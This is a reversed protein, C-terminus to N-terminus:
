HVSPAILSAVQNVAMTVMDVYDDHKAGPFTLMENELERIWTTGRPFYVTGAAFRTSAGTARAVKDKDARVGKVPLGSRALQQVLSLQYANSEVYFLRPKYDAHIQKLIRPQDPGELKTHVCHRLILERKKTISWVGACFYDAQESTSVALDCSVITWCDEKKWVNDDDGKFFEDDEDYYRFWERKFLGGGRPVPEQQYLADKWYPGLQAEDCDLSNFVEELAEKPYREPWLAEGPERGLPDNDDALAPLKVTEWRDPENELVRGVLDDENWRTMIIVVAAKPELRTKATSLWWDWAHDRYTPSMAEQANKVPDDIL